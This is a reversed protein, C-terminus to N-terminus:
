IPGMGVDVSDRFPMGCDGETKSEDLRTIESKGYKPSFFKKDNKKVDDAQRRGLGM